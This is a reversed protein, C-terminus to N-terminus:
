PTPTPAPSIEWPAPLGESAAEAASAIGDLMGEFVFQHLPYLSYWYALGALGVPDFIATQTIRSGGEVPAVEFQLWARGPLKMEARLRLCRGPEVEEVRWFDLADGPRVWEPDRRGRRLGVGGLLTDLFGRLRWLRDGHYWGVDGGIRRIPTFAVHPPVAVRRQRSDVLRTGIRTGGWPARERQASRTDSWRTRAIREDENAIARAVADGVRMPRVSFRNLDKSANTVVTPNRLGDILKRGVHAYVPTVLGLWLSSLRPTLVPVPIMLRRLGRRRAYQRMLDGYSVRDPSGVEIVRSGVEPFEVAEVLYDVIDEVAIPQTEVRVWAPTIMVPLKEVLARILEFSLSGSGVIVSARLEITDVGSTRLIRGVEQRSRLHPSLDPGEGLGGLYVIRRVGAARAARGFSEAAERDAQQFDGDAGMSHILYFATDVGTLAPVLSAPEFVDGYVVEVGRPVRAELERPRRAMARVGHGRARLASVLRGGVCGTAGTVLVASM